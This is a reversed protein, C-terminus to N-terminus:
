GNSRTVTLTPVGNFSSEGVIRGSKFIDHLIDDLHPVSLGKANFYRYVQTPSFSLENPGLSCTCGTSRVHELVPIEGGEVLYEFATLIALGPPQKGCFNVRKEAKSIVEEPLKKDMLSSLKKSLIQVAEQVPFPASLVENQCRFVESILQLVVDPFGYLASGGTINLQAWNPYTMSAAATVVDGLVFASLGAISLKQVAEPCSGRFLSPSQSLRARAAINDLTNKGIDFVPMRCRDALFRSVGASDTTGAEAGVCAVKIKGNDILQLVLLACISLALDVGDINAPLSANAAPLTWRQSLPVQFHSGERIEGTSDIIVGPLYLGGLASRSVVAQEERMLKAIAQVFIYFYKRMRTTILPAYGCRACFSKLWRTNCSAEAVMFHHKREKILVYGLLYTQDDMSLIEHVYPVVDCEVTRAGTDSVSQVCGNEVDIRHQSSLRPLERQAQAKRYHTALYERLDATDAVGLLAQQQEDYLDLKDLFTCRARDGRGSLIQCAKKYPTESTDILSQVFIAPNTRSWLDTIRAPNEYLSVRAGSGFSLADITADGGDGCEAFVVQMGSYHAPMDSSKGCGILSLTPYPAANRAAHIHCEIALMGDRTVVLDREGEPPPFAVGTSSGVIPSVLFRPTGGYRDFFAIGVIQGPTGYCPVALFTKEPRGPVLTAGRGIGSRDVEARRTLFMDPPSLRYFERENEYGFLHLLTLLAREHLHFYDPTRGLEILQFADRQINFFQYRKRERAPDPNLIGKDALGRLFEQEPQAAGAALLTVVDGAIKCKSCHFWVEFIEDSYATLNNSSCM